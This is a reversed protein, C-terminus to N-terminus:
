RELGLLRQRLQPERTRADLWISAFARAFEPDAVEGTLGHQSYFRAGKDPLFVGTLSDGPRVDTLVRQMVPAWAEAQARTTGTRQMEEISSNVLQERSITRAYTLQLAFPRQMSWSADVTWLRADYITLGFFTMRGSGQLRAGPLEDQWRGAHALGALGLLVILLWEPRVSCCAKNFM